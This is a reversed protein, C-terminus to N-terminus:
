KTRFTMSGFDLVYDTGQVTVGCLANGMTRCDWRPDDEMIPADTATDIDWDATTTDITEVSAPAPDTHPAPDACAISLAIGAAAVMGLAFSRPATM